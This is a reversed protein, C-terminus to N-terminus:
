GLQQASGTTSAAPGCLLPVQGSSLHEQLNYGNVGTYVGQIQGPVNYGSALVFMGTVTYPVSVSAQSLSFEIDVTSEAPVEVPADFSFTESSTTTESTAFTATYTSSVEIDVGDFIPLGVSLSATVGISWESSFSVSEEVTQSWNLQMSQTVPTDNVLTASGVVLPPLPASTAQTLDYQVSSPTFAVPPDFPGIRRLPAGAAPPRWGAFLCLSSDDLLQAFYPGAPLPDAWGIQWNVSGDGEISVINGDAQLRVQYPQANWSNAAWLSPGISSPTGAYIVFNGDTQMLVFYLNSPSTLYMGPSLYTDQQFWEPNPNPVYDSM